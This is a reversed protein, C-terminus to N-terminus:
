KRENTYGVRTTKAVKGVGESYQSRLHLLENLVEWQESSLIPTEIALKLAEAENEPIQKGEKNLFM